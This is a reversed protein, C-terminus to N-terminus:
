GQMDNNQVTFEIVGDGEAFATVLSATVGLVQGATGTNNATVATGAVTANAPTANASTLAIVGGTVPTAAIIPTLTVAKAATTAPKLVRFLTSILTFNYPIAKGFVGAAFDSLQMTITETQNPSGSTFYAKRADIYPTGAKDLYALRGAYNATPTLGLTQDDQWYYKKGVSGATPTVSWAVPAFFDPQLVDIRLAADVGASNDVLNDGCFGIFREGATNSPKSAVNVGAAMVLAGGLLYKTSAAAGVSLKEMIGAGNKFTPDIAVTTNAM